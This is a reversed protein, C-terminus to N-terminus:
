YVRKVEEAIVDALKEKNAQYSAIDQKNTIFCVEILINEAPVNLIAIRGRASQSEKKVSRNKISLCKSISICINTALASEFSSFSDPVIVEVGTAAPNIAANFHIDILLNDKKVISRLWSIVQALPSVNVDTFTNYKERLRSVILDRLEVTLDAEKYGNGIAGPDKGGHGAIVFLNKKSLNLTKLLM